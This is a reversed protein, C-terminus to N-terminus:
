RNEWIPKTRSTEFDKEENYAGWFAGYFEECMYLVYDYMCKPGSQAGSDPAMKTGM